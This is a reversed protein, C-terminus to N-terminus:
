GHIILMVTKYLIFSMSVISFIDLAVWVPVQNLKDSFTKALFALGFLWVFDGLIAGVMFDVFEFGHYHSALGGIVVITDIFVLPNLWTLALAKIVSQMQSLQQAKINYKNHKHFLSKLKVFLYWTIFIIGGCNILLTIIRSNSFSLGVGGAVILIGDAIFCVGAVTYAYNKNISHEMINLTQPGIGAILAMVFIAGSLISIIHPFIHSFMM